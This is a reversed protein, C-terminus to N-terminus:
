PRSRRMPASMPLTVSGRHVDLVGRAVDARMCAQGRGAKGREEHRSSHRGRWFSLPMSRSVRQRGGPSYGLHRTPCVSECCLVVPRRRSSREVPRDPPSWIVPKPPFSLMVPPEPASVAKPPDM